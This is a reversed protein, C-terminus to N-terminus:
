GRRRADEIVGKPIINEKPVGPFVHVFSHGCVQCNVDAQERRQNWMDFMSPNDNKCKPCELMM